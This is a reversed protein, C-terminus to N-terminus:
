CSFRDHVCKRMEAADEALGQVAMQEAESNEHRAHEIAVADHSKQGAEVALSTALEGRMGRLLNEHATRLQQPPHLSSLEGIATRLNSVAKAFNTPAAAPQTVIQHATKTYGSIREYNKYQVPSLQPAEASSTKSGEGCASLAAAAVACSM